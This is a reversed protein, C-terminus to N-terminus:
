IYQAYKSQLFFLTLLISQLLLIREFINTRNEMIAIKAIIVAAQPGLAMGLPVGPVPPQSSL